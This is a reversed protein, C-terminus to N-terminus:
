AGVVEDFDCPGIEDDLPDDQYNDQPLEAVDVLDQLEGDVLDQDVLDQIEGHVLELDVGLEDPEVVLKSSSEDEMSDPPTLM